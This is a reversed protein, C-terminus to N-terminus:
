RPKGSKRGTAGSGEMHSMQEKGTKELDAERQGLDASTSQEARDGPSKTEEPACRSGFLCCISRLLNMNRGGVGLPFAKFSAPTGLCGAFSTAM